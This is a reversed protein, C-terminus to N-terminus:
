IYETIKREGIGRIFQDRVFQNTITDVTEDDFSCASAPRRLYVLFSPLDEDNNKKLEFFRYRELVVNKIPKLFENLSDILTEFKDDKLTLGNVVKRLDLGGVALM